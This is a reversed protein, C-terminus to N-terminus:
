LGTCIGYITRIRAPGDFGHTTHMAQGDQTITLLEGVAHPGAGAYAAPLTGQPSLRTVPRTGAPSTLFLQGEHDAAILDYTDAIAVCDVNECQVTMECTWPEAMVVAPAALLPALLAWRGSM